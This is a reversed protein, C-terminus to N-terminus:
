QGVSVQSRAGVILSPPINNLTLQMANAPDYFSPDVGNIGITLTGGYRTYINNGAPTNMPDIWIQVPDSDTSGYRNTATAMVYAVGNYGTIDIDATQNSRQDGNDDFETWTVAASSDPSTDVQAEGHLGNCRLHRAIAASVLSSYNPVSIDSSLSSAM